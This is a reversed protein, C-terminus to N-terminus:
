MYTFVGGGFGNLPQRERQELVVGPTLQIGEGEELGHAVHQADPVPALCWLAHCIDPQGHQAHNHTGGAIGHEDPM